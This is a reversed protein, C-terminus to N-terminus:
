WIICIVYMISLYGLNSNSVDRRQQQYFPLRVRFDAWPVLMEHVYLDVVPSLIQVAICIAENKHGSYM